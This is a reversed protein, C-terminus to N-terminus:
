TIVPSLLFPAAIRLNSSVFIDLIALSFVTVTTILALRWGAYNSIQTQIPIEITSM